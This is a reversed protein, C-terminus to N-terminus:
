TATQNSCHPFSRGHAQSESEKAVTGQAAGDAASSELHNSNDPAFLRAEATTATADVQHGDRLLNHSLGARESMNEEHRAASDLNIPM